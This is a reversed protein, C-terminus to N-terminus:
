SGIPWKREVEHLLEGPAIPFALIWDFRGEYESSSYYAYYDGRVLVVIKVGPDSCKRISEALVWGTGPGDFDEDIVAVQFRKDGSSSIAENLSDAIILKHNGQRITSVAIEKEQPRVALLVTKIASMSREMGDACHVMRAGLSCTALATLSLWPMVGPAVSIGLEQLPHALYPFFIAADPRYHGSQANIWVLEGGQDFYMEGAGFVNRGDVLDPHHGLEARGVWITGDADIV